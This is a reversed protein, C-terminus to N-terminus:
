NKPNFKKAGNAPRSKGESKNKFSKSSKLKRGKRPLPKSPDAAGFPKRTEPPRKPELNTQKTLNREQDQSLSPPTKREFSSKSVKQKYKSKTESVADTKYPKQTKRKDPTALTEPTRLPKYRTAVGKKSTQSFDKKPGSGDKKYNPRPKTREERANFFDKKGTSARERRPDTFHPKQDLVSIKTKDELLMKPGVDKIFKPAKEKLIEFVTQDPQIRIAGIDDKTLNGYRCL